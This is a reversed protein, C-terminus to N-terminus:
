GPKSICRDRRLGFSKPSQHSCVGLSCQSSSKSLCLDAHLTELLSVQPVTPKHFTHEGPGLGLKLPRMVQWLPTRTHPSFLANSLEHQFGPDAVCSGLCLLLSRQAETEKDTLHTVLLILHFLEDRAQADGTYPLSPFQPSILLPVEASGSM